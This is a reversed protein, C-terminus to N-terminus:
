FLIDQSAYVKAIWKNEVSQKIKDYITEYDEPLENEKFYHQITSTEMIEYVCVRGKGNRAPFIRQNSVNSLVQKLDSAKVGFDLLRLIAESCTKAHITSFVM